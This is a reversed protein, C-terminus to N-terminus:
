SMFKSLLIICAPGLCPMGAALLSDLLQQLAADARAFDLLRPGGKPFAVPSCSFDQDPFLKILCYTILIVRTPLIAAVTRPVETDMADAVKAWTALKKILNLLAVKLSLCKNFDIQMRLISFMFLLMANNSFSMGLPSIVSSSSLTLVPLHLRRASGDGNGGALFIGRVTTPPEHHQRIRRACAALTKNLM